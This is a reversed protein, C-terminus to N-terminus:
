RCLGQNYPSWQTWSYRRQLWAAAKVNAEPDYVAGSAYSGGTVSLPVSDWTRHLFQFLGAATSRPNDAGPDGGSEYGIICLARKIQDTPFYATV